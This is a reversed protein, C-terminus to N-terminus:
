KQKAQHLEIRANANIYGFQQHHENTAGDRVAVKPHGIDGFKPSTLSARWGSSWTRTKGNPDRCTGSNTGSLLPNDLELQFEKGARRGNISIDFPGPPAGQGDCNEPFRFKESTVTVHGKGKVTGDTQESFSFDVVTTENNPGGEAHGTLTGYWDGLPFEAEEFTSHGVADDVIVRLRVVPPSDQPVTYVPEYLRRECPPPKMGYDKSDVQIGNAILQIAKVGSPSSTHGDEYRESATAHVKIQDGVKVKTGKPPTSNTKLIPPNRDVNNLRMDATGDQGPQRRDLGSAPAYVPDISDFPVGKGGFYTALNGMRTSAILTQLNSDPNQATFVTLTVPPPSCGSDNGKSNKVADAAAKAAEDLPANNTLLLDALDPDFLNLIHCPTGSCAGSSSQAHAASPGPLEINAFLCILAVFCTVKM